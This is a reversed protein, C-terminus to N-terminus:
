QTTAPSGQSDLSYVVVGNGYGMRDEFITDRIFNFKRLLALSKLNDPSLEAHIGALHLENFSYHIIVPIVEQMIGKGQEAPLVEYGIEATHKEKDINWLCITAVLTDRDKPVIAWFISENGQIGTKIRSIFKHADEIGTAKPRDLFRNVDEDSRLAFIEPADSDALQRLHFRETSIVPFPNFNVILM